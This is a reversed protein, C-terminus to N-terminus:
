RFLSNLGGYLLVLAWHGILAGQYPKSSVTSGGTLVPYSVYQQWFSKYKRLGSKAGSMVNPRRMQRCCSDMASIVAETSIQSM